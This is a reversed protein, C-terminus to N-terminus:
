LQLITIHDFGTSQLAGDEFTIVLLRSGCSSWLVESRLCEHAAPSSRVEHTLVLAGSYVDHVRITASSAMFAREVTCVRGLDPSVAPMCLFTSSVCLSNCSLNTSGLTDQLVYVDGHDRWRRVFLWSSTNRGWHLSTAGWKYAEHESAGAPQLCALMELTLADYLHLASSEAGSFALKCGARNAALIASAKCPESCARIALMATSGLLQGTLLDWVCIHHPLAIARNGPSFDFCTDKCSGRPISITFRSLHLGSHDHVSIEADVLDAPGFTWSLAMVLKSIHSFQLIVDSWGPRIQRSQIFHLTMSTIDLLYTTKQLVSLKANALLM